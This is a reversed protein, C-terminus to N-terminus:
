AAQVERALAHLVKQCRAEVEPRAQRRRVVRLRHKHWELGALANKQPNKQRQRGELCGKRHGEIVEEGGRAKCM